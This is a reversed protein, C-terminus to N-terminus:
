RGVDVDQVMRQNTHNPVSRYLSTGPGVQPRCLTKVVPVVDECDTEGQIWAHMQSSAENITIATKNKLKQITNLYISKKKKEKTFCTGSSTTSTTENSLFATQATTWRYARCPVRSLIAMSGVFTPLSLHDQVYKRRTICFSSLM